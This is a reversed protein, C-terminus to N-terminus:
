KVISSISFWIQCKTGRAGAGRRWGAPWNPSIESIEWRWSLPLTNFLRLKGFRGKSEEPIPLLLCKRHLDSLVKCEVPWTPERVVRSWQQMFVALLDFVFSFYGPESFKSVSFNSNWTIRLCWSSDDKQIKEWGDLFSCFMSLEHVVPSFFLCHTLRSEHAM